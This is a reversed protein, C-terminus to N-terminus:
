QIQELDVNRISKYIFTQMKDPNLVQLRKQGWVFM